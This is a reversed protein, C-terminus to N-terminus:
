KQKFGLYPYYNFKKICDRLDKNTIDPIINKPRKNSLALSNTLGKGKRGM